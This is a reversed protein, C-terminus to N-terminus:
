SPSQRMAARTRADSHDCAARIGSSVKEIPLAVGIVGTSAVLVEEPRCGVGAAVDAAMRRANAMGEDGTCANACGSNVVIARAHGNTRELHERSVLVPAAQALNTTFLAAASM